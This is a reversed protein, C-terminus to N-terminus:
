PPITNQANFRKSSAMSKKLITRATVAGHNTPTSLQQHPPAPLSEERSAHQPTPARHGLADSNRGPNRTLHANFGRFLMGQCAQNAMSLYTSVNVRSTTRVASLETCGEHWTSGKAENVDGITM